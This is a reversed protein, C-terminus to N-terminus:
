LWETLSNSMSLTIAKIKITEGNKCWTSDHNGFIFLLFTKAFVKTIEFIMKPVFNVYVYLVNLSFGLLSFIRGLFTM